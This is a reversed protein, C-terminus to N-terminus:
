VRRGIAIWDCNYYGSSQTTRITMQTTTIIKSRIADSSDAWLSFVVRPTSTFPTDFTITTSSDRPAISDKGILIYPNSTVNTTNDRYLAGLRARSVTGTLNSASIYYSPPQGALKDSNESDNVKGDNNTDYQSKLMDGGGPANALVSEKVRVPSMRRVETETGSEMEVQTAEPVMNFYANKIEADTQNATAGNEIGDLKTKDVASMLGDILQTANEGTIKFFNQGDLTYQWSNNSSDFFLRINGDFAIGDKTVVIKWRKAPTGLEDGDTNLPIIGKHEM